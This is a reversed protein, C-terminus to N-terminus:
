HPSVSTSSLPGRQVKPMGWSPIVWQSYVDGSCQRLCRGRRYSEDIFADDYVYTRERMPAALSFGPISNLRIANLSLPRLAMTRLDNRM